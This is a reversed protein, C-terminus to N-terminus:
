SIPFDACSSVILAFFAVFIDAVLVVALSSFDAPNVSSSRDAIFSRAWSTLASARRAERASLAAASSFATSSFIASIGSDSRTMASRIWAIM